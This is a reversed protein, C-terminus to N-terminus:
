RNRLSGVLVDRTTWDVKALKSEIGRPSTTREFASDPSDAILQDLMDTVMETASPM